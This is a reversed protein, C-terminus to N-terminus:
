SAKRTSQPSLLAFLALRRTLRALVQAQSAIVFPRHPPAVSLLASLLFFEDFIQDLSSLEGFLRRLRWMVSARM